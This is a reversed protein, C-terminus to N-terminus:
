VGKLFPNNGARNHKVQSQQVSRGSVAVNVSVSPAPLQLDRIAFAIDRATTDVRRLDSSIQARNREVGAYVADVARRQDASAQREDPSLGGAAQRQLLQLTALQGATDARMAQLETLADGQVIALLPNSQLESIGTDIAALKTQLDAVSNPGALSQELVTRIGQAQATSQGSVNQQTQYVALASGVAAGIPASLGLAAATAAGGGITMAGGGVGAAYGIPNGANKAGEGLMWSGGALGAVGAGGLALRSALNMGATRVAGPLGAGPPGGRVIGGNVNVVGAQIAMQRVALKLLDGVAGGTLKNGVFGAALLEQLPAPMSMFAGVLLQAASAGAGLASAIAGWDLREAWQVADRIQEALDKAFQRIEPQHGQLWDVGEKALENVVPLLETGVTAAALRVNNELIKMQSASTAFRKEAEIQMANNEDWANSAVGLSDTLNNTNGLIKLLGRTIRIDTFGLKELTAAQEAKSLKGLKALFDSMTASADTKYARAFDRSSTGAIKALLKLETGGKNVMGFTELFFKQLETSGAEVEEGTNAWAAGWGLVQPTSLGVIGAVGSVGEAMGLIQSETSAGKNGLDVLTNGVREFDDGVLRLNTKLHGLSTAAAESTLDTTVALKSVTDTFGVIDGKAVGLAGAAEAIGALEEYAIPSETSIRQLGAVITSIDGDVTKAVGATASEFSQATKIAYGIAGVAATGGLLIGRELNRALNTGAKGAIKELSRIENNVAKMARSASVDKGTLLFALERNVKSAM